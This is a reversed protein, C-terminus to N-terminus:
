VAGSRSNHSNDCFATIGADICSLATLLNGVYMDEPRYHPGLTQHVVTFYNHKTDNAIGNSNPIIRAIQGEWAHIHPDCFGPMVITDRADVVVAKGDRAVASLDPGIDLIKKGEILVDARSLNGVKPDMSVIAGANLLIRRRPDANTRELRDMIRADENQQPAAAAESLFSAAVSGAAVGGAYGASKKFFGRRSPKRREVETEAM